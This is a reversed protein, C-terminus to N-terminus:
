LVAHGLRDAEIVMAGLEEFSRGAISKGSGIGGGLLICIPTECHKLEAM